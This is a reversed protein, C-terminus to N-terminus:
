FFTKLTTFASSLSGRGFWLAVSLNRHSVLNGNAFRLMGPLETTMCLIKAEGTYQRPSGRSLSTGSFIRQDVRACLRVLLYTANNPFSTIYV